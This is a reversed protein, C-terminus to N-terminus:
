ILQFHFSPARFDEFEIQFSVYIGLHENFVQRSGIVVYICM